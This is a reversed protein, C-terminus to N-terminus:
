PLFEPQGMLEGEFLARLERINRRDSLVLLHDLPQLRTAGRPVIVQNDRIIAYCLTNQPFDIEIMRRNVFRSKEKIEVPQM